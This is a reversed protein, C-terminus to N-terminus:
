WFLLASVCTRGKWNGIELKPNGFELKWIM